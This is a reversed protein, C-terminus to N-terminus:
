QGPPRPPQGAPPQGAPPPGGRPGGGRQSAAEKDQLHMDFMIGVMDEVPNMKGDYKIGYDFRNIKLDGKFRADNDRLFVVTAPVQISKTVAKLTLDGTIVYHKDDVKSIQKSVFKIQPFTETELFDKSKLHNDRMAIRTNLSTADITISVTSNELKARDIQFDGEWREFYGQASILLAEGVFNIQSHPPDPIYPKREAFAAPVCLGLLTLFLVVVPRKMSTEQCISYGFVWVVHWKFFITGTPDASIL